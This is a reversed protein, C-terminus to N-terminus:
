KKRKKKTKGLIEEPTAKRVIVSYEPRVEDCFVLTSNLANEVLRVYESLKDKGPRGRSFEFDETFSRLRKVQEAADERYDDLLTSYAETYYAVIAKIKRAYSLRNKERVALNFNNYGQRICYRVHITNFVQDFTVGTCVKFREETHQYDPTSVTVSNRGQDVGTNGVPLTSYKHLVEGNDLKCYGITELGNNEVRYTRTQGLAM